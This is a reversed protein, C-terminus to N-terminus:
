SMHFWSLSPYTSFSKSVSFIDPDVTSLTPMSDSNLSALRPLLGLCHVGIQLSWEGIMFSLTRSTPISM